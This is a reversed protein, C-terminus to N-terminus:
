GKGIEGRLSRAPLVSCVPSINARSFMGFHSLGQKQLATLKWAEIAENIAEIVKSTDTFITRFPASM